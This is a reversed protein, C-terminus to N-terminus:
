IWNGKIARWAAPPGRQSPSERPDPEEESESLASLYDRVKVSTQPYAPFTVPSVDRLWNEILTRVPTKGKEEKWEDKLAIFGFSMQSIDGRRISEQLDRAWQTDPPEIEIALGKDDETLKLTGNKTRGLVYNPDHNFLARIDDKAITNKFAGPAVQERFGGLDESLKNFVAAYGKIAPKKNEGQDVRLETITFNRLEIDSNLSNLEGPELKADKLHAALHRWVGKRDADPINSGGMAGNLVGIGSQCGKINAADPNGNGDVDHHIFKYSVKKTEDGKPDRWAFARSYFAFDQGLKLAAKNGPGDWAKTSTATHHVAIAAM